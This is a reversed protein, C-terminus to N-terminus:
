GVGSDVTAFASILNDTGSSFAGTADEHACGDVTTGLVSHSAGIVTASFGFILTDDSDALCSLVMAPVSFTDIVFIFATGSGTARFGFGNFTRLSVANFRHLL